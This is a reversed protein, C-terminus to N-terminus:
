NISECMFSKMSQQKKWLSCLAVLKILRMETMLAGVTCYDKTRTRYTTQSWTCRSCPSFRGWLTQSAHEPTRRGGWSSRSSRTRGGASSPRRTQGSPPDAATCSRSRSPSPSVWSLWGPHSLSLHARQVRECLPSFLVTTSGDYPVLTNYETHETEDCQYGVYVVEMIYKLLFHSNKILINNNSFSVVLM